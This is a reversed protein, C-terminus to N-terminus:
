PAAPPPAAPELNINNLTGDDNMVITWQMPGPGAEFTAKRYYSHAGEGHEVREETVETEMGLQIALQDLREFIGDMDGVRNKMADDMRSWLSDAQSAFIWDVVQRGQELVAEDSELQAQASTAALVLLATTLGIKTATAM